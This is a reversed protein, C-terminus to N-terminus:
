KKAVALITLDDYQSDETIHSYNRYLSHEETPLPHHFYNNYQVFYNKLFDDIKKDILIRNESTLVPLPLLRFVKEVSMLALILNPLSVTMRSFDFILQENEDPNRFKQLSYVRQNMVAEVVEHIRAISFAEGLGGEDQGMLYPSLEKELAELQEKGKEGAYESELYVTWDEHRLYRRAEEFGDTFLLMIDGQELHAQEEPFEIPLGMIRESIAGAAPTNHLELAVVRGEKKRYIHVINDGANCFTINGSQEDLTLMNFAAFKGKFEREYIIENINTALNSLISEKQMQQMVRAIQQQRLQKTQWNDFHQLFLTAVTVMILAAEIDKGSVDCKIMAYKRDDIKRYYFYDGSVGKAGEYYGFFEVFVTEEHRTTAKTKEDHPNADLTIFMKQVDKGLMVSQNALEAKILGETMQNITNSLFHLEDRTKVVIPQNKLDAKIEADRIREVGLVLKKIPNVTISALLLAGAIGAVIAISAFILVQIIITQQTEQIQQNITETSIGLRISGQYNTTFDENRWYVPYFFTYYQSDTDYNQVSFVPESFISVYREIELELRRRLEVEQNLSEQLDVNDRQELTRNLNGVLQVIVPDEINANFATIVEQEIRESVVDQILYVGPNFGLDEPKNSRRQFYDLSRYKADIDAFYLQREEEAAFLLPDNSTWIFERKEQDLNPINPNAASTVTVYQIEKVASVQSVLQGLGRIRSIISTDNLDTAAGTALSDLMVGIRDELGQALIQRQNSLIFNSLPIAVVGVVAIVLMLMFITFKARLGMGQRQMDILREKLLQTAPSIRGEVLAAVEAELNSSDRLISRIRLLSVVILLLLLFVISGIGINRVLARGLESRFAVVKEPQYLNYDGLKVAGNTEFGLRVPHTYSGRETHNLGIVYEGTELESLNINSILQDSIIQYDGNSAFLEHDWPAQGDLDFIISEIIGNTLYGRGNFRLVYDGLINEQLNVTSLRTVPVYKNLRIYRVGIEGENGATDVGSVVMAWLGDDVNGLRLFNEAQIASSDSFSTRRFTALTEEENDIRENADGLYLLRVRYGALDVEKNARWALDVTNSIIYGDEDYPLRGFRVQAPPFIDFEYEAKVYESINGANDEARLFLNWRGHKEATLRLEDVLGVDIFERERPIDRQSWVYSISSIGASDAPLQITYVVEPINTSAGAVYGVPRVTPRAVFQDAQRYLLSNSQIGPSPAQLWLVHFKEQHEVIQPLFHVGRGQSIRVSRWNRGNEWALYVVSEGGINFYYLIYKRENLTFIKAASASRTESSIYENERNQFRVITGNEDIRSLSVRITKSQRNRDMLLFLSGDSDQYLRPNQNIYSFPSIRRDLRDSIDVFNTTFVPASWDEEEKLKNIIYVQKSIGIGPIVSRNEYAIYHRNGVELFYPNLVQRQDDPLPLIRPIGFTRGTPRFMYGISRYAQVTSENAPIRRTRQSVFLVLGASTAFLRPNILEQGFNTISENRWRNQGRTLTFVELNEGTLSVVVALENANHALSFIPPLNNTALPISTILNQEDSWQSGDESSRYAINQFQGEDTSLIRQYVAYLTGDFSVIRPFHVNKNALIQDPELFIPSTGIRQASLLASIFFFILVLVAFIAGRINNM